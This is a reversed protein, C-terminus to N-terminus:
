RGRMFFGAVYKCFTDISNFDALRKFTDSQPEPGRPQALLSVALVRDGAASLLLEDEGHGGLVPRRLSVQLGKSAMWEILRLLAHLPEREEARCVPFLQQRSLVPLTAVHILEYFQSGPLAPSYVGMALLPGSCPAGGWLSHHGQFDFGNGAHAAFVKRGRVDSVCDLLLGQRRHRGFATSAQLRAKLMMMHKMDLRTELYHSAPVREILPYRAAVQRLASFQEALSRKANPQVTNLGAAELWTLLLNLLLARSKGREPDNFDALLKLPIDPALWAAPLGPDTDTESRGQHAFPCHAAHEPTGPNNKLFLTGTHGNLTVNLMPWQGAQCDCALWQGAARIGLLWQNAQLQERGQLRAQAFGELQAQEAPTLSRLLAGHKDVLRM